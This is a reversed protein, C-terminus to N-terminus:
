LQPIKLAKSVARDLGFISLTGSATRGAERWWSMPATKNTLANAIYGATGLTGSVTASVNNAHRAVWGRVGDGGPKALKLTGLRSGVDLSWGLLGGALDASAMNLLGSHEQITKRLAETSKRALDRAYDKAERSLYRARVASIENAM